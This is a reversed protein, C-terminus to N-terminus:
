LSNLFSYLDAKDQDSLSEYNTRSFSAEGGHFNIAGEYTRARGDHMLFMDGGQLDKQLGLGWLPQTKWESTTVVGETYGDDLEAGMDHFLMDTYPYFEVEDFYTNISEGTKLTKIHCSACGIENFVEEGHMVELEDENRRSPVALTRVYFEVAHVEQASIEPDGALDGSLNNSLYNQPDENSFPSTIGMDQNYANVVQHLLNIAGGKRGFRGIYHGQANPIRNAVDIYDPAAVYNLRGSVIGEANQLAVLDMLYQDDIADLYGSGSVLPAIFFSSKADSPLSEKEYNQISRNQLQPGGKDKMGSWVNTGNEIEYKGFRTLGNVPNGKGDGIHCNECSSQVFIPGLGTEPTFIKAFLEDGALHLALESQSLSPIPKALLEEDPITKPIIRSCSLSVFGIIIYLIVRRM